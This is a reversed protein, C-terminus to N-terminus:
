GSCHLSRMRDPDADLTAVHRRSGFKARRARDCLVIRASGMQDLVLLLAGPVMIANYVDPVTM